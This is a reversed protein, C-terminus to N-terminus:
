YLSFGGDYRRADREVARDLEEVSLGGGNEGVTEPLTVTLNRGSRQVFSATREARRVAALLPIEDSRGEPGQGQGEARLGQLRETLEGQRDFVPPMATYIGPAFMRKESFSRSQDPLISSGPERGRDNLPSAWLPRSDFREGEPAQRLDSPQKQAFPEGLARNGAFRFHFPIEEERVDRVAEQELAMALFNTL